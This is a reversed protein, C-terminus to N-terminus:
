WRTATATLYLKRVQREHDLPRREQVERPALGHESALATLEDPAYYTIIVSEPRDGSQHGITEEGQGCHTAIVAVGGPRLVRRLETLAAPMLHRPLNHLSYWAIAAAAVGQRYPLALLDGCTLPLFPVHSRAINLMAPTLDLGVAAGGAAVVRRSVQAPGCGLDLVIEGRAVTALAADVIARDFDNTELEDAFRTGYVAATAEYAHQVAAPDFAVVQNDLRRRPRARVM